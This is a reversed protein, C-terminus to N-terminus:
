VSSPLPKARAISRKRSPRSYRVAVTTDGELLSEAGNKMQGTRNKIKGLGSLFAHLKKASIWYILVIATIKLWCMEIFGNWREIKHAM